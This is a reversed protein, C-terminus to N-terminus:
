RRPGRGSAFQYIRTLMFAVALGVLIAMLITGVGTAAADASTGSPLTCSRRAVDWVGGANRCKAGRLAGYAYFGSLTALVGVLLSALSRRDM